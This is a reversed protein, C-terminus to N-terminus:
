VLALRYAVPYKFNLNVNVSNKETLVREYKLNISNGTLSGLGLKVINDQAQILHCTGMLLSALILRALNKIM